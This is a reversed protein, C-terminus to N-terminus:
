TNPRHKGRLPRSPEPKVHEARQALDLAPTKDIELLQIAHRNISAGNAVSHLIGNYILDWIRRDGQWEDIQRESSVHEDEIRLFHGTPSTSGEIQILEYLGIHGSDTRRFPRRVDIQLWDPGASLTEYTLPSSMLFAGPVFLVWLQWYQIWDVGDGRSLTILSMGGVLMALAIFYRVVKGKVSLRHWALMPGMGAPPKPKYSLRSERLSNREPTVEERRYGPAHPPFPEGTQSDPRPPLNNPKPQLNAPYEDM